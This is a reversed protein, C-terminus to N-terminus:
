IIIATQLSRWVYYDRPRGHLLLIQATAVLLYVAGLQEAIVSVSPTLDAATAFPNAIKLTKIPAAFLLITGLIALFPDSYSFIARYFSPINALQTNPAM